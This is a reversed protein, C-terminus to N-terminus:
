ELGLLKKRLTPASTKEGLWIAFFRDTFQKDKIMGIYTGDRYFRSFGEIDRIGTLSVGNDVDLFIEAMQRQWDTLKEADVEGQKRIEEVSRRAIEEGKLKLLYTLRLAFPERRDFSGAPAYLEADYVNWFLFSM